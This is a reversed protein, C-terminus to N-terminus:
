RKRSRAPGPHVLQVSGLPEFGAALIARLSAANGPAAATLVPSGRPILSLGTRLLTRGNGRDRHHPPVEYSLQPLGAVGDAVVLLGHDDGYARVNTRWHRAHAARPHDELAVSRTLHGGGTGHAGLLVDLCEVEGDEGAMLTLLKPLTAGGFADAGAALVAELPLTTAVVAHGTFSVVAEVGDQWPPVVVVSGDAAPFRGDVAGTLVEALTRSTV